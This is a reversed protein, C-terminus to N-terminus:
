RKGALFPMIRGNKSGKQGFEPKNLWEEFM